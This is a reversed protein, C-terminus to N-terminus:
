STPLPADKWMLFGKAPTFLGFAAGALDSSALMSLKATAGADPEAGGLDFIALVLFSVIVGRDAASLPSYMKTCVIEQHLGLNRLCKVLASLASRPRAGWPRAASM